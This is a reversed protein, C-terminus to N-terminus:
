KLTQIITYGKLSEWVIQESTSKNSPWFDIVDRGDWKKIRLLFPTYIAYCTTKDYNMQIYPSSLNKDSIPKFSFNLTYVKDNQFKFSCKLFTSIGTTDLIPGYTPFQKRTGWAQEIENTILQEHGGISSIDKAYRLLNNNIVAAKIQIVKATDKVVIEDITRRGEPYFSITSEIIGGEKQLSYVTRVSDPTATQSFASFAALLFLILLTNKM